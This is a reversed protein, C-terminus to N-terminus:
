VYPTTPLTLHTYSVSSLSYSFDNSSLVFFRRWCFFSASLLCDCTIVCFRSTSWFISFSVFLIVAVLSATPWNSDSCEPPSSFILEFWSFSVANFLLRSVNSLCFIFSSRTIWFWLCEIVSISWFTLFNLSSFIFDSFSNCSRDSNISADDLPAFM